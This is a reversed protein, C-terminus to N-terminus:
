RQLVGLLERKPLDPTFFLDRNVKRPFFKGFVLIEDTGAKGLLM